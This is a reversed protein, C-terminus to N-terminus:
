PNITLSDASCNVRGPGLLVPGLAECLSQFDSGTPILAGTKAHKLRPPMTVGTMILDPTSALVGCVRQLQDGAQDGLAVDLSDLGLVAALAAAEDAELTNDALLRDKLALVADRLTLGDQAQAQEVLRGIWTGVLPPGDNLPLMDDTLEASMALCEDTCNLDWDLACCTPQSGCSWAHLSCLWCRGEDTLYDATLPEELACTDASQQLSCHGFADEWALMSQFSLGRFGPDGDKLYTGVQRMLRADRHLFHLPFERTPPWELASQMHRLLTRAPRRHVGDGVSNFREEPALGDPVWPNLVPALPSPSELGDAPAPRNFYPGTTIAELLSVLSYGQGAFAVTLELLLDRQARERPFYNAITLRSGMAERWVLDAVNVSVLWALATPGDVSQDPQVFLGARLTDFGTHLASELDWVSAQKSRDGILFGADELDDDWVDDGAFFRGCVDSMGWPSQGKAWEAEPDGMGPDNEYRMGALVGRRRFFPRLDEIARGGSKGFVAKEFHGPIEWTRDLAPDNSGTISWESNHCVMCEMRRNLYNGMFAEARAQRASRAAAADPTRYDHFLHAFLHARFVVSLDDLVLASNVLEGMTWDTAYKAGTAANGRVHQALEPGVDVGASGYCRENSQNGLRAVGLEDRLWPGWRQVYEPSKAMSRVLEGRSTQQAIEVLVAVERISHPGRGWMVDVLRRVFAEDGADAVQAGSWAPAGLVCAMLVILAARKM